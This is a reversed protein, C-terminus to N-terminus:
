GSLATQRSAGEPLSLGTLRLAAQAAGTWSFRKSQAYAKARLRSRLGPNSLRWVARGLARPDFPDFYVAAEGGVEPLAAANSLALPAGEWLAEAAPLGFGESLSPIVVCTANQYLARLQGDTVQPLLIVRPDASIQGQAGYPGAQSLGAVVIKLHSPGHALLADVAFPVNKHRARSGMILAYDDGAFGCRELLTDDPDVRQLHDGGNPIVTVREPAMGHALLRSRSFNSVTAIQIGRVRAAHFLTKHWLRYALPYTTPADFVQADHLWLIARPQVLPMTNCFNLLVSGRAAAPYAMQEGLASAPGDAITLWGGPDLSPLANPAAANPPPRLITLRPASLGTAHAQALEIVLARLLERGVRTVGTSPKALFRANVAIDPAGTM